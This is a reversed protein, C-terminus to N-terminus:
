KNAQMTQVTSIRKDRVKLREQQETASIIINAPFECYQVNNGWSNWALENNVIYVNSTGSKVIAIFGHEKLLKVARSATSRSMDLAEQIVIFSCMVANYKDMHELLFLLIKYANPSATILWRLEDSYEKNIQYFNSFPSKRAKQTEEDEERKQNEIDRKRQEFSIENAYKPEKVVSIETRAM